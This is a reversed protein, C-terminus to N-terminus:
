HGGRPRSNRRGHASTRIFILVVLGFTVALLAIVFYLAAPQSGMDSETGGNQMAAILEIMSM